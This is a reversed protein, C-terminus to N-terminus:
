RYHKIKSLEVKLTSLNSDLHKQVIEQKKRRIMEELQVKNTEQEPCKPGLMIEKLQIPFTKSNLQFDIIPNIISHAHTMVWDSRLKPLSPNDIILLRVEAEISYEFPKYFHKWYGLKTFEFTFGTVREVEEKVFKIFDLDALKGEKNAYKVKQLLVHSDLSSHDVEFVMCVGRSDEAYLRWLTLNDKNEITACSTIYRENLASISRNHLKILPKEVGNLYTDVYNVESRDNMGVLGSMRYSINNIISYLTSLSTYRCILKETFTGFLERFLRNEFANLSGDREHFKYTNSNEDFIVHDIFSDTGLLAELKQNDSLYSRAAERFIEVIRRQSDPRFEIKTPAILVNVVFEFEVEKFYDLPVNRDYLYFSANDTVIGFRANTISMASVAQDTARALVNKNLLSTKIEIVALPHVGKYVVLDFWRTLLPTKWKDQAKIILSSDPRNGFANFFRDFVEKEFDSERPEM